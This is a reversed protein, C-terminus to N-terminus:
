PTKSYKLKSNEFWTTTLKAQDIKKQKQKSFVIENDRIRKLFLVKFIVFCLKTMFAKFMPSISYLTSNRKKKPMQVKFTFPCNKFIYVYM